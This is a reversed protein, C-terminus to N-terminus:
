TALMFATNFHIAIDLTLTNKVSISHLLNHCIFREFSYNLQEMFHQFYIFIFHVICPDFCCRMTYLLRLWIKMLWLM